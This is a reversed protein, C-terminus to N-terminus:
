PAAEKLADPRQPSRDVLLPFSAASCVILYVTALALALAPAASGLGRGALVIGTGLIIAAFAALALATTLVLPPPPPALAPSSGLRQRMDADLAGPPEIEASRALARLLIGLQEAEGRCADCEGLHPAASDADGLALRRRTEDCRSSM